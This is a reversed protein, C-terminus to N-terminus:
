EREGGRTGYRATFRYLHAFAPKLAEARETATYEVRPPSEDYARRGLFGADVLDSLRESLTTPSIELRSEIEGFRWPGPDRAFLYLVALTHRRGLLSLLDAVAADAAAREEPTLDVWGPLPGREVDPELTM